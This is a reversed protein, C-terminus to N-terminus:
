EFRASADAMGSFAVLDAVALEDASDGHIALALLRDIKPRAEAFSPDVFIDVGGLEVVAWRHRLWRKGARRYGTAVAARLGRQRALTAFATAHGTCDGRGMRLAEDAELGPLAMDDDITDAVLAVLDALVAPIPAPPRRFRVVWDDGEAAVIQSAVTPPAPRTAGTIRLTRTRRGGGPMAALDLLEVFTLQPLLGGDIRVASEGTESRWRRPLDDGAMTLHTRSVGLPTSLELLLEGGDGRRSSLEARAFAAGPVLVARREVGPRLAAIEYIGVDGTRTSSGGHRRITWGDDDREATVRRSIPGVDSALSVRRAALEGDTDIILRTRTEVEVGDRAIALVDARRYRYGGARRRLSIEAYGVPVERFRLQYRASTEAVRQAAAAGPPRPEAAPREVPAEPSCAVAAVLLWRM